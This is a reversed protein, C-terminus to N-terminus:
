VTKLKKILTDFGYSFRTFVPFEVNDVGGVVVVVTRYTVNYSVRKACILFEVIFGCSILTSKM